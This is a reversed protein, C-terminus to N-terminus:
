KILIMTVQVLQHIKEGMERVLGHLQFMRVNTDLCLLSSTAGTKRVLFSTESLGYLLMQILEVNDKVKQVRSVVNQVLERTQEIYNWLDENKWTLTDFAPKLQQNIKGIEHTILEAEEPLITRRLRNYQRTILTLNGIYKYLTERKSYLQVAVEPIDPHKLIELYKVERLIASLKENFNVEFLGCDDYRLIPQRLHSECLFSLDGAWSTYMEEDHKDLLELVKECKQFVFNTEETQLILHNIHRFHTRHKLLRERLEQSWKLNGATVPMNKHLVNCGNRLMNNYDLPDYKSEQLVKWSEHFEENMCHIEESLNKGRPGGIEIKELKLFDIALTFLEKLNFVSETLVRVEVNTTNNVAEIYLLRQLIKDFRSFVLHSPFDWPKVSAENSHECVMQEQYTFFTKKFTRFIRITQKIKEMGEELEMTFIEKPILYAFARDILLNCFEQLLVGIRNPFCYYKSHTWILCITHFLPAILREANSFNSEELYAVYRKLPGLYLYIDQAESVAEEVKVTLQQFGPYYSSRTRELLEMIKHVKPNQLQEYIGLLNEKQRQWFQIEASPGPNEGQLILQASDLKLVDSILHTWQVVMTEITYLLTTDIYQTVAVEDICEMSAPLPLYTCRAVRGQLVYMTSKLMEVHKKADELVVKPWDSYNNPNSLIVLLVQGDGACLNGGPGTFLVLRQHQGEELFDLLLRQNEETSIFRNWKEAKLKFSQFAQEKIHDILEDKALASNMHSATNQVLTPFSDSGHHRASELLASQEM